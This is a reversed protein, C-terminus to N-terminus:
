ERSAPIAAACEGRSQCDPSLHRGQWLDMELCQSGPCRDRRSPGKTKKRPLVKLFNVKEKGTKQEDTKEVKWKGLGQFLNRQRSSKQQRKDKEKSLPLEVAKESEGEPRPPGNKEKGSNREGRSKM